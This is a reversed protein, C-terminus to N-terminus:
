PKGGVGAPGAVRVTEGAVLSDPPDVVVSEGGTLGAVVEVENGFDRGISVPELDIRSGDRVTAVRLGEERFLLTSAPLLYASTGAPLRLHVEAYAGSLLEGTPNDVDIEALLTRTSPDIANATRVLTGRFRRGPFEALVLDAELGPSAVRSYAEPVNVYARMRGPSAIHFLESRQGGAGGSDILAGVDTNRATIVGDFPAYIKEFSRLDELRKVNYRASEVVAKKAAYDGAANDAEQRSASDTKLLSEFRAATVEAVHLNAEATALDARAQQLQQDVEPTDIEALLQGAKVHAGIDVTWRKLYGNTRAYIPADTYARVDAPLVIEQDAVARRPHVVAVSPIALEATEARVIARARVRSVVGSTVLAALVVTIGLGALYRHARRRGPEPPVPRGSPGSGVLPAESREEARM